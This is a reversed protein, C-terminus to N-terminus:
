ITEPVWVVFEDNVVGVPMCGMSMLDVLSAFPNDPLGSVLYAANRAANWAANYAANSAANYAEKRAEKRATNHAENRAANYAANRAANYAEKRAANSTEKRAADSATNYAANRAANRAADSAADSAADCAANSATNYAANRAANSAADRAANFEKITKIVRLSIGSFDTTSYNGLCQLHETVLQELINTNLNKEPKLWPFTPLKELLENVAAFNPGADDKTFVRKGNHYFAKGEPGRTETISNILETRNNYKDKILQLTLLRVEEDEYRVTLSDYNGGTWEAEAMGKINWGARANGHSNMGPAAYIQLKKGETDVLFSIYECM